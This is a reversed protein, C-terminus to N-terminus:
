TLANKVYVRQESQSPRGVVVSPPWPLLSFHRHRKTYYHCDVSVILGGIPQSLCFAVGLFRCLLRQLCCIQFLNKTIVESWLPMMDPVASSLPLTSPYRHFVHHNQEPDFRERSIPATRKTVPSSLSRRGVYAKPIPLFAM